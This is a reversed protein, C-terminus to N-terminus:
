NTAAFIDHEIHWTLHNLRAWDVLLDIPPYSSYESLHPNFCRVDDVLVCVKEFRHLNQSIGKLEDVVPTDQKGRFTAGASYHGDLWFNVNGSLTPLLEPFITESTGNLIVVNKFNKFKRKADEFLTPEPEISYVKLAYKSLFHTTQGLFTGTEIWTADPVGLRVLCSQKILHPSPAAFKRRGWQIYSKAFSVLRYGYTSRLLSRM